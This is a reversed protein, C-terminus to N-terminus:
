PSGFLRTITPMLYRVALLVAFLGTIDGTMYAAILMTVHGGSMSGEILSTLLFANAASALLGALLLAHFAPAQETLQLYFANVRLARLGEFVIWTISGSILASLLLTEPQTMGWFLYNGALESLMLGPVARIGLLSTGLVRIGHPLFLLSAFQTIEPIVQEQLPTIAAFVLFYAFLYLLFIGGTTFTLDKVQWAKPFRL